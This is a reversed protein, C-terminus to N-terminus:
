LSWGFIVIDFTEDSFPLRSGDGAAYRTRPNPSEPARAAASSVLEANPDIASVSAGMGAIRRVLRGDGCGIELVDRGTWSAAAQLERIENQEPDIDISM